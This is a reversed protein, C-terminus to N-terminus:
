THRVARRTVSRFRFGLLLMAVLTSVLVATMLAPAGGREVVGLVYGVPIMVGWFAVLYLFTAPWVDSAGRLAGMLVGQTGDPVLVFAAVLVTPVAIAAVAADATYIATLWHPAFFFLSGVAALFIAALATAVWGALRVGRPDGRGVANGVRVSAATAFGIACMFALSILNMAIMYGAVQVAGLLGAFLTMASFASTEMGHAIGMPYGVRRFRRGLARTDPIAARLGYRAADVRSLVYTAVAAFMFWRVLTTALAAGEAGMAPFGWHGFIMLWNLFFNLVNAAIVVVMGPVPRNIGELFFVSATYLFVGPLGWGFIVLVSGAGAALGPEQGTWLLFPEGVYCLATLVIGFVAAHVLAVRWIGGTDGSRGAGEAQSTLVVTGMLLGIGVLLMFVQPAMALGYYALEVAGFHGTMATDVAVLVLIGLRGFMVPVALGL